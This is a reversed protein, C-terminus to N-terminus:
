IVKATGAKPKAQAVLTLASTWGTSDKGFEHVFRGPNRGSYFFVCGDTPSETRTGGAHPFSPRGRPIHMAKAHPLVTDM